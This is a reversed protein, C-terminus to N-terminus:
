NEGCISGIKDAADRICDDGPLSNGIMCKTVDGTVKARCEESVSMPLQEGNARRVEKLVAGSLAQCSENCVPAKKGADCGGMLSLAVAGFALKNM